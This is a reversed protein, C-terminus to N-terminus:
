DEDEKAQELLSQMNRAQGDAQLRDAIRRLEDKIRGLQVPVEEPPILWQAETWSEKLSVFNIEFLASSKHMFMDTWKLNVVLGEYKSALEELSTEGTPLRFEASVSALLAPQRWLYESASESPKLGMTSEVNFAPGSGVNTIRLKVSLRGFPILHAVLYPKLEAERAKRLERVMRWTLFVYVATIAALLLSSNENLAALM